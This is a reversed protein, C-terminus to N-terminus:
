GMPRHRVAAGPRMANSIARRTPTTRSCWICTAHAARHPPRPGARLAAAIECVIDTRSEDRIAHVADLRLGDFRYEHMWYLANQVFFDRM